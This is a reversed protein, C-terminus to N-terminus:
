DRVEGGLLGFLVADVVDLLEGSTLGHYRQATLTTWPNSGRRSNSTLSWGQTPTWRASLFHETVEEPTSFLLQDDM